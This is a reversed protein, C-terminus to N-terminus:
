VGRKPAKKRHSRSARAARPRERYALAVPTLAFGFRERLSNELYRRYSFHPPEASSTFAVFTPPSIGKQAIYFFKLRRGRVGPPPHAAVSEQLWRNLGATAVWRSAQEHISDILPFIRGLRLGTLASVSVIPAYPAFRLRGRVRDILARAEESAEPEVLDWKNLLVAFPRAEQQAIGAVHLDQLTPADTCDMVLLVVDARIINKRASMVSLAEAGPKVHGRRRIGATDIIRYTREGRTVISDISDRTTGPIESVLAREEGLLANLLSSKGVNPRGSIAVSVPREAAVAPTPDEPPLLRSVAEKLDGIGLDHEASIPLVTDFGLSHFEAAPYERGPVDVKNVALVVPKGSAHFWRGLEQDVPSLGAKGDVLFVLVSASGAAELVSKKVREELVPDEPAFLGGTDLLMVPRGDWDCETRNIDRTMGAESHVLARRSDILRNFLRSKGTNPAGVIAVIPISM